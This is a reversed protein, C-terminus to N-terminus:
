FWKKGKYGVTKCYEESDDRMLFYLLIKLCIYILIPLIVWYFFGGIISFISSILNVLLISM